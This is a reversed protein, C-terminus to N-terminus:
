RSTIPLARPVSIPKAEGNRMPQPRANKIFMGMRATSRPRLLAPLPAHTRGTDMTTVSIRTRPTMLATTKTTAGWIPVVTAEMRSRKGPKMLSHSANAASSELRSGSIVTATFLMPSSKFLSVDSSDLQSEERPFSTSEEDSFRAVETKEPTTVNLM